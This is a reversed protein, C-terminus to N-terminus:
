SLPKAQEAEELISKLLAAGDKVASLQVVKLAVTQQNETDLAKYITATSSQALQSVLEFRGIKDAMKPAWDIRPRQPLGELISALLLIILRLRGLAPIVSTGPQQCTGFGPM